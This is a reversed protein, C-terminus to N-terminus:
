QPQFEPINACVYDSTSDTEKSSNGGELFSVRTCYKNNLNDCEGVLEGTDMTMALQRYSLGAIGQRYFLCM